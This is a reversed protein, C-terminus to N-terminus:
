GHLISCFQTQTKLIILQWEWRLTIDRQIHQDKQELRYKFEVWYDQIINSNSIIIPFTTGYARVIVVERLAM